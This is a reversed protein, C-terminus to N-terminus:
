QGTVEESTPADEAAEPLTIEVDEYSYTFARTLEQPLEGQPSAETFTSNEVIQLPRLTEASIWLGLEVRETDIVTPRIDTVATNNVTATLAYAQQGDFETQGELTASANGFLQAIQSAQDLQQFQQDFVDSVNTRLWETGYQQAIGASSQYLTGNQLIQENTNTRGQAESTFELALQQGQRDVRITRDIQITLEQNNQQAVTTTNEEMRYSEVGGLADRSQALLEDGTVNEEVPDLDGFVSDATGDTSNGDTGDTGDTADGDTGDDGESTSDDDTEDTENEGGPDEPDDTDAAQDGTEDPSGLGACGATVVLAIVALLALQRKSGPWEFRIM